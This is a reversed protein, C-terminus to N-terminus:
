RTVPLSCDRTATGNCAFNAKYPLFEVKAWRAAPRTPSEMGKMRTRIIGCLWGRLRDPVSRSKLHYKANDAYSISRM